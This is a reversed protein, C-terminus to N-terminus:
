LEQLVKAAIGAPALCPVCECAKGTIEGETALRSLIGGLAADIAAVGGAGVGGETAFVVLADAEVSEPQM